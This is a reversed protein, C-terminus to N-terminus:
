KRPDPTEETILVTLGNAIKKKKEVALRKTDSDVFPLDDSGLELCAGLLVGNSTRQAEIHTERLKSSTEGCETM